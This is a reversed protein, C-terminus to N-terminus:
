SCVMDGSLFSNCAILVAQCIAIWSIRRITIRSIYWPLPSSAKLVCILSDFFGRDVADLRVQPKTARVRPGLNQDFLPRAVKDRRQQCGKGVIPGSQWGELYCTILADLDLWRASCFRSAISSSCLLASPVAIPM